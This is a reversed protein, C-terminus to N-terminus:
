HRRRVRYVYILEDHWEGGIELSLPEVDELDFQAKDLIACSAENGDTVVARVEMVPLYHEIYSVLAMLAETGLGQNQFEELLLYGIQVSTQDDNLQLGCIGLWEGTLKHSIVLCLWHGDGWHWEVLREDFRARIEVLNPKDSIYRIVAEDQHLRRFLSWHDMRIPSMRLRQSEIYVM